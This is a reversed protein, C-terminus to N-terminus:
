ARSETKRSRRLLRVPLVRRDGDLVRTAMAMHMPLAHCLAHVRTPLLRDTDLFDLGRGPVALGRGPSMMM